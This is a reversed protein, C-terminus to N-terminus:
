IMASVPRDLVRKDNGQRSLVKGVTEPDLGTLEGLKELSYKVVGNEDCEHQRIQTKLRKLAEDTLVKARNRRQKTM